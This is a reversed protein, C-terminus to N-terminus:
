WRGRVLDGLRRPVRRLDSRWQGRHERWGDAVKPSAAFLGAVIAILGIAPIAAAGLGQTIAATFGTPEVKPTVAQPTKGDGGPPTTTGPDSSGPPYSGGGSPPTGNGNNNGGGNNSSPTKPDSPKPVFGKQQDIAVAAARSYKVLNGLGNQETMPVFGPPLEGVERGPKQGAGAVFQVFESMDKATQKDLGETPVATYVLMTGPYAGSLKTSSHVKDYPFDWVGTSDNPQYAHAAALMSDDDPKVFTRGVDSAFNSDANPAVTTELSATSLNYRRADGLSTLGLIFRFGTTQRGMAVLKQGETGTDLVQQCVTTSNALAYQVDLTIKSMNPAPAAVLPLYPVPDSQLCTNTGSAYMQKPEFNDLLPWSDVPLPIGKYHPNVVMGWPDPKGNLWARAEPDTNIYSTLARMVDSDSSLAILTAASQSAPVGQTIGPNLAQFEPDLTINLPNNALATYEQKVGVVAPYSETLLKAILRPTLRLHAYPHGQADDVTYAITWGTVATPANAIHRTYPIPPADSVFAGPISGPGTVNLITRAQPEGTEVHKFRFLKPNLCFRPAWQTTAEALSESGYINIPSENSVVDCVNSLPAFSLPVVIRNRWNSAAWWLTGSVSLDEDGRPQVVQGPAFQGNATCQKEAAAAVDPDSPQDEPPLSAAAVDCSIGMIPVVVLSCKVQQSCGLSANSEATWVNFEASGSGNPQTVGYTTNSPMGLGGVNAAEPAMGACGGSGGWYTKGGAAKFPVWYEAPAPTFCGAPRTPPAGAIRARQAESAYRDVRWVPFTTSYSDQYREPSTQTWCTQPSVAAKGGPTGRCELLVVPYEEQIADGSNQDSVIGGTPHAGTWRVNIEQRDRLDTTQDVKVTFTRQDVTVDKGDELHTRAINETKSFAWGAADAPSQMLSPAVVAAAGMVVLAFALLRRRM